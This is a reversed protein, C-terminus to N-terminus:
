GMMSGRGESKAAPLSQVHGHVHRSAGGTVLVVCAPSSAAAAHSPQQTCNTLLWRLRLTLLTSVQWWCLSDAVCLCLHLVTLCDDCCALGCHGVCCCRQVQLLLCQCGNDLHTCHALLPHADDSVMVHLKDAGAYAHHICTHATIGRTASTHHHWARM